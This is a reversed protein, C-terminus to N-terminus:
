IQVPVPGAGELSTIGKTIKSKVDTCDQQTALPPQIYYGKQSAVTYLEYQFQMDATCMQQLMQRLNLDSCECIAKSYASIGAKVGDLIDLVMDKETM